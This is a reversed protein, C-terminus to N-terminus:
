PGGISISRGARQPQFDPGAVGLNEDVAIEDPSDVIEVAHELAKTQLFAWMLDLNQGVAVFREDEIHPDRNPSFIM